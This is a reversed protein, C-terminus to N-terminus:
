DAKGKQERKEGPVKALSFLLASGEKKFKEEDGRLRGKAPTWKPRKAEKKM